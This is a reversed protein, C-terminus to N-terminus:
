KDLFANYAMGTSDFSAKWSWKDAIYQSFEIATLIVEEEVSMDLMKLARDYDKLHHSPVALIIHL